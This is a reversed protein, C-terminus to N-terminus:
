EDYFYSFDFLFFRREEVKRNEKAVERTKMKEDDILLFLAPNHPPLM